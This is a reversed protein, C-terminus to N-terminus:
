RLGVDDLVIVSTDQGATVDRILVMQLAAPDLAGEPGKADAIRFGLTVAEGPEVTQVGPHPYLEGQEDVFLVGIRAKRDRVAVTATFTTPPPTAQDVGFLITGPDDEDQRTVWVLVADDGDRELRISGRDSQNWNHVIGHDGDFTWVTPISTIATSEIELRGLQDVCAQRAATTRICERLAERADTAEGREIQIRALWLLAWSRVPDDAALSRSLTLFGARAGAHDGLSRALLAEELQERADSGHAVPLVLGLLALLL